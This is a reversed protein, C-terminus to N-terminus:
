ASDEYGCHVPRGGGRGEAVAVRDRGSRKAKYLAEDAACLLSLRDAGHDPFAAVGMSMSLGILCQNEHVVYLNKVGKRLEEARRVCVDLPSEPFILMFEEGGYRCVIDERRVNANFFAGIEGLVRDGVAHGYTDNFGKFHDIDVLVVCLPSNKRVARHLERELSDEMYRRNFLNTLPDRISQARLTEKLEINALALASQRAVTLALQRRASTVGGRFNLSFVGHTDGRVVLPTCIYSREERMNPQDCNFETGGGESVHVEGKRLARCKEPVCGEPGCVGDEGWAVVPTTRRSSACYRYLAGSGDPFLKQTSAKVIECAEEFSASSLVMDYMDSLVQSERHRSELEEVVEGLHDNASQLEADSEKQAALNDILARFLSLYLVPFILAGILVADIVGKAYGNEVPLWPLIFFMILAEVAVCSLVTILLLKWPGYGTSTDRIM